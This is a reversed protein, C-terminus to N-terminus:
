VRIGLSWGNKHKEPAPQDLHAKRGVNLVHKMAISVRASSSFKALISNGQNSEKQVNIQNRRGLKGEKQFTIKQATTNSCPLSNNLMSLGPNLGLVALVAFM